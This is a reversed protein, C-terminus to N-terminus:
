KICMQKRASRVDSRNLQKQAMPTQLCGHDVSMNMLVYTLLRARQITEVKSANEPRSCRCIPVWIVAYPRSAGAGLCGVRHLSWGRTVCGRILAVIASAIVRPQCRSPGHRNAYARNGQVDAKSPKAAVNFTGTPDFASSILVLM